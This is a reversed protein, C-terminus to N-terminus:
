QIRCSSSPFFYLISEQEHNPIGVGTDRVIFEIEAVGSKSEEILKVDVFIGGTETFKVANTMLNSMVQFLRFPDGMVFVPVNPEIKLTFSIGIEICLPAFINEIYKLRQHLNFPIREIQIEGSEIRAYDLIDNILYNLQSGSKEMLEALKLNEGELKSLFIEGVGLISNLPTRIEHSMRALFETKYRSMKELALTRNKVKEDLTQSFEQIQTNLKQLESFQRLMWNVVTDMSIAMFGIIICHLTIAPINWIPQHFLMAPGLYSGIVIALIYIRKIQYKIVLMSTNGSAIILYMYWYDIGNQALQAYSLGILVINGVIRIIEGYAPIYKSKYLYSLFFNFIILSVWLAFFPLYDKLLLKYEFLPYFLLFAAYLGLFSDLYSLFDAGEEKFLHKRNDQM